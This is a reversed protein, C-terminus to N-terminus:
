IDDLVGTILISNNSTLDIENFNKYEVGYPDKILRIVPRNPYKKNNDVVIATEGTSISICSGLPFISVHDIM